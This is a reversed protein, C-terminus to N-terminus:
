AAEKQISDGTLHLFAEALGARDMDLGSLATDETLLRRLVSETADTVIELRAEERKASLVGPWRAVDDPSLCSLCRIRRQGALTRITEVPGDAVIRGDVMVAVRDALADAEELYHTTLLVSGGNGVHARIATWIAQRAEIDLGTTPEDLFLLAPQGCIALAFQVRRQQGGSLAGCRRSLLDSIGAIRACTDISHPAPYYSRTLNILERVTLTNQLTASQLMVGIRRRMAVDAPNGGFLEVSGADARLLGLLLGIATSKGAGNPGLLALVQGTPIELDIDALASITGYRKHVARLSALPPAHQM